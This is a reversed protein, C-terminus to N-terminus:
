INITAMCKGLGAFINLIILLSICLISSKENCLSKTCCSINIMSMCRGLNAYINLIIHTSSCFFVCSASIKIVLLSPPVNPFDYYPQLVQVEFKLFCVLLYIELVCICIM